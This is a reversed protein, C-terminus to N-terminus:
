RCLQALSRRYNVSLPPDTVCLSDPHGRFPRHGQPRPSRLFARDPSRLQHHLHPRAGQQRNPWRLARTVRRAPPRPTCAQPPPGACRRNRTRDRSTGARDLRLLGETHGDLEEPAIGIASQSEAAHQGRGPAAASVRLRGVLEMAARLHEEVNPSCRGIRYASTKAANAVCDATPANFRVPGLSVPDCDAEHAVATTFGNGVLVRLDEAQHYPQYGLSSM